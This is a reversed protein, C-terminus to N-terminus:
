IRFALLSQRPCRRVIVSRGSIGVTASDPTGPNSYTIQYPKNAGAFVGFSITSLSLLSTTLIRFSALVTRSSADRPASVEGVVGSANASYSRSSWSRQFFTTLVAPMLTLHTLTNACVLLPARRARVVADLPRDVLPKAAQRRGRM